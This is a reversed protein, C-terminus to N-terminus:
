ALELLKLSAIRLISLEHLNLRETNKLAKNM